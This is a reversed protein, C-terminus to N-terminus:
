HKRLRITSGGAVARHYQGCEVVLEPNQPLAAVYLVFSPVDNM